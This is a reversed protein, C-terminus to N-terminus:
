LGQQKANVNVAQLLSNIEGEQVYGLMTGLPPNSQAYKGSQYRLIGHKVYHSCYDLTLEPYLFETLYVQIQRNRSDRHFKM